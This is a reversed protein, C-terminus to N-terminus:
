DGLATFVIIKEATLNDSAIKAVVSAGATIDDVSGVEAENDAYDILWIITDDNVIYSKLAGDANTLYIVEGSNDAYVTYKGTYPVDEAVYVLGDADVKLIVGHGRMATLDYGNTRVSVVEGNIVVNSYTDYDAGNALEGEGVLQSGPMVYAYVDGDAYIANTDDIYVLDAYGNADKLVEIGFTSSSSAISPVNTYGTYMSYEGEATEIAYVTNADSVIVAGDVVIRPTGKVISYTSGTVDAANALEYGDETEVYSVIHHEYTVAYDRWTPAAEGYKAVTVENLKGSALDLIKATYYPDFGNTVKIGCDLITYVPDAAAPEVLGILNGYQDVYVNYTTGIKDRDGVGTYGLGYKLAWDYTKDGIVSQATATNFDTLKATAVPSTPTINLVDYDVGKELKPAYVVGATDNIKSDFADVYVTGNAAEFWSRNLLVYSDKAYAETEVNWTRTRPTNTGDYVTFATNAKTKEHGNKDYTAKVVNTVQALWTEIEVIQYKGDVKYVETLTGQATGAVDTRTATANISTTSKGGNSWKVADWTGTKGLDKSLNCQTVATTYTAVPTAMITVAATVDSGDKAVWITAPRGWPAINAADGDKGSVLNFENAALTGYIGGLSQYGFAPTYEVNDAFLINYIIQAAVERSIAKNLDVGTIGNLAGVQKAIQAVQVTWDSGTFQGPQNYGITRLFAALAQYGTMYSNPKYQGDGVGKLYGADAAYGVYGAYWSDAPTDTFSEAAGGAFNATYVDTVDGTAIRYTMTALQARTLNGQPAYRDGGVGELISLQTAVDVATAYAPTVSESDKYDGLSTAGATVMLSMAMVLALVLALVKKLNRM